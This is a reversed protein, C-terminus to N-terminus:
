IFFNWLDTDESRLSLRKSSYQCDHKSPPLDSFTSYPTSPCVWNRSGFEGILYIREKGTLPIFPPIPVFQFLRKWANGDQFHAAFKCEVTFLHSLHLWHGSGMTAVTVINMKCILFYLSWFHIWGRRDCLYFTFVSAKFGPWGSELM